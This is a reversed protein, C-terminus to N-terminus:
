RREYIKFNYDYENKKDAFHKEESTLYWDNTDFKPFFADGDPECSVETIYLKNALLLLQKYISEGGIIFIEEKKALDEITKIDKAIEVGETKEMSNSLVINKRNPLPKGLMEMISLYTKKGMVVTKGTTIKAFYKMDASLKWPLKNNIGIVGNKAVAVILSIGM